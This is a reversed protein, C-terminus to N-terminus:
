FWLFDAAAAGTFGLSGRFVGSFALTEWNNGTIKLYKQM